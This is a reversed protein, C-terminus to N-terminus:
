NTTFMKSWTREMFHASEPSSSLTLDSSEMLQEYFEKPYKRIIDSGVSFIAALYIKTQEDPFVKKFVREYWQGYDEDNRTSTLSAKWETLRFDYSSRYKPWTLTETLNQSVGDKPTLALKLFEPLSMHESFNGQTFIVVDPLNDYNEIIYHIYTHAERGVNPLQKVCPLLEEPITQIDGKNYIVKNPFMHTWRVDESYRAVVLGINM